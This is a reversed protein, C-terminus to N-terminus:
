RCRKRVAEIPIVLWRGTASSDKVIALSFFLAAGIGMLLSAIIAIWTHCM